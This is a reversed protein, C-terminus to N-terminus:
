PNSIDADPPGTLEVTLDWRDSIIQPSHTALLVDFDGLAAVDHLDRLFAVQWDVHLSLEPEDILILTDRGVKFLLEYLLVLEQQEGSSLNRPAVLKGDATVFTFGDDKSVRIEKYLFRDNIIRKLIETRSALDDFVSLKQKVDQVYVALLAKTSEDIHAPVQFEADQDTDLLGAARLELRRKELMALDNRLEEDGLDALGRHAVVRAPFSRDLSQSLTASEALTSQITKALDEAYAAVAPVPGSDRDRPRRPAQYAAQLRQTDIFRVHVDDRLAKLWDPTRQPKGVLGPSVLDGFRELVEDLTLDENSGIHRWLNRSVRDLGPIAHEIYDPPYDSPIDPLNHEREDGNARYVLTVRDSGLGRRKTDPGAKRVILQSSPAGLRVVFERFPVSRLVGYRGTFVANLMRLLVTKGLGNPGHIITIRDDLNLPVTHDFLGFLGRVEIQEVHMSDETTAGESPQHDRPAVTCRLRGRGYTSWGIIPAFGYSQRRGTHPSEAYSPSHKQRTAPWRDGGHTSTGAMLAPAPLAALPSTTNPALWAGGTVLVALRWVEVPGHHRSWAARLAHAAALCRPGPAAPLEFSSWGVRVAAALLVRALADAVAGFRRCWERVTTEPRGLTAAIRRVGLGAISLELARGIVDVTDWRYPTVFWPLLAATSGCRRRRVRPM